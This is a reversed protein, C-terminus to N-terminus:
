SSLAALERRALAVCADLTMERGAALNAPDIDPGLVSLVERASVKALYDAEPAGDLFAAIMAASESRGTEHLLVAIAALTKTQHNVNQLRESVALAETLLAAAEQHNGLACEVQGLTVRVDDLGPYADLSRTTELDGTLLRKAGEYDGKAYLVDALGRRPWMAMGSQGLKEALELSETFEGRARDYEGCALSCEGSRSLAHYLNVPIATERRSAVVSDCLWRAGALDGSLRLTDALILQVVEAPLREAIGELGALGQILAQRAEFYRGRRQQAVGILISTFLTGFVDDHILFYPLGEEGLRAAEALDPAEARDRL